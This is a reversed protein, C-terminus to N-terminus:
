NYEEGGVYFCTRIVDYIVTEPVNYTSLINAAKVLSEAADSHWFEGDSPIENEIKYKLDESIM